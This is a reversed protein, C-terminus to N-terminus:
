LGGLGDISWNAMDSVGENDTGKKYSIKCVYKKLVTGTANSTIEVTGNIVFQYNGTDWANLPKEAFALQADNGVRTKIESNCHKFALNSMDNSIPAIDGKDPTDVLFLDSKVVQNVLPMVLEKQFLILGLLGLVLVLIPYKKM